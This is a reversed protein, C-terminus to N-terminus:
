VNLTLSDCFVHGDNVCYTINIQPIVMDFIEGEKIEFSFSTTETYVGNEKKEKSINAPIILIQGTEGLKIICPVKKLKDTLKDYVEVLQGFIRTRPNEGLYEEGLNTTICIQDPETGGEGDDGLNLLFPPILINVWEGRKKVTGTVTRDGQFIDTKCQIKMEVDESSCEGFNIPPGIFDDIEM